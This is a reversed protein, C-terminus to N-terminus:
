DILGHSMLAATIAAIASRAEADIITGGSPNPVAPQREGVVQAGAVVIRICSLEGLKWSMGTWEIPLSDAKSWARMGPVPSVFRWGGDTWMTLHDAKGSWAGDPASGCIWCRGKEPAAPPVDRPGEEVAPHLALDLRTLAENHFHEKQAQGPVIFPLEFRPTAEDM